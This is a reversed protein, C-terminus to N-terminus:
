NVYQFIVDKEAPALRAVTAKINRGLSIAYGRVAARIATPSSTMPIKPARVVATVPIRACDKASSFM